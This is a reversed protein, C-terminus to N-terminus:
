GLAERLRDLEPETLVPKLWDILEEAAFFVQRLPHKTAGVIKEYQAAFATNQTVLHASREIRPNDAKLMGLVVPAVDAALEDMERLDGVAVFKTGPPLRAIKEQFASRFTVFEDYPLPGRGRAEVLRGVVHNAILM